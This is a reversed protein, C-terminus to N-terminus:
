FSQSRVAFRLLRCTVWVCSTEVDFSLLHVLTHGLGFQNMEMWGCELQGMSVRMLEVLGMSIAGAMHKSYGQLAKAMRKGHKEWTNAMSKGHEQWTKAM